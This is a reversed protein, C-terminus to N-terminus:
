PGYVSSNKEFNLVVYFNGHLMESFQERKPYTLFFFSVLENKGTERLFKTMKSSVTM